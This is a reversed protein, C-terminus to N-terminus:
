KILDLTVTAPKIEVLKIFNPASAQIRVDQRGGPQNTVDVFANIDQATLKEILSSAGEVTVQVKDSATGVLTYSQGAKLGTVKLPIDTFTRQTAPVVNVTVSVQQPQVATIGEPLTLNLNFKTTKSVGTLDIVPAPFSDLSDLAKASGFVTVSSTQDVSEVAYGPAIDGKFQLRLAVSKSPKNIPINVDVRDHSLTIGKVQKGAKDLAVLPVSTHISEEAGDLSINAVVQDISNVASKPGSAFVKQPSLVADGVNYGPKPKGDTVLKISFENNVNAELHITVKADDITVGKPVGTVIVPVDHVGEGLKTADAIVKISDGFSITNMVDLYSGHINLTVKPEGVLSFDRQDYLVTVAKDRLQQTTMTIGSSPVLTDDGSHVVFWLLIALFGAIIKLVTNNYLLRDMM